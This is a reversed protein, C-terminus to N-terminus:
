GDTICQLMTPAKCLDKAACPICWLCIDISPHFCEERAFSNCANCCKTMKTSQIARCFGRAGCAKFGNGGKERDTNGKDMGADGKKGDKKKKKDYKEKEDEAKKEEEGEGTRGEEQKGAKKEEEKDEELMDPQWGEGRAKTYIVNPEGIKSSMIIHFQRIHIQNALYCFSNDESM